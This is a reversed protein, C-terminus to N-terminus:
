DASLELRQLCCRLVAEPDGDAPVVHTALDRYIPDRRAYLVEVESLADSGALLPRDGPRQDAAARVKLEEPSARLYILPGHAVLLERAGPGLPTGGGCALVASPADLAALARLELARFAEEGEERLFAAVPRGALAACREDLDVFPRGLAQALIRGVTSKGSRRLGILVVGKGAAERM